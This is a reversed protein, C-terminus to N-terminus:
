GKKRKIENELFEILYRAFPLTFQTDAFEFTKEGDPHISKLCAQKYARKFQRLVKETFIMRKKGIAPLGTETHTLSIM